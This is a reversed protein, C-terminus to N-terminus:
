GFLNELASKSESKTDLDQENLMGVLKKLQNSDLTLNISFNSDEIKRSLRASSYHDIKVGCKEIESVLQQTCATNRRVENDIVDRKRKDAALIEQQEEWLIQIDRSAIIHEQGARYGQFIRVKVGDCRTKGSYTTRTMKTELVLVGTKYGLSYQKGVEIDSMKM